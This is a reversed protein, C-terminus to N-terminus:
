KLLLKWCLSRLSPEYELVGMGIISKLMPMEIKSTNLLKILQEIYATIFDDKIMHLKSCIIGFFKHDELAVSLKEM